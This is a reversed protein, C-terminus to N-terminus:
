RPAEDVGAPEITEDTEIRGLSDKTGLRAKGEGVVDRDAALRRKAGGRQVRQDETEGRAEDPEDESRRHRPRDAPGVHRKTAEHAGTHYIAVRYGARLLTDNLRTAALERLDPTQSAEHTKTLVGVSTYIEAHMERVAAITEASM